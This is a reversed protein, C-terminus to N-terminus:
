GPSDVSFMSWPYTIFLQSQFGEDAYAADIRIVVGSLIIRFGVGLTNKGKKLLDKYSDSVVGREAFAALQIGTRIGKAIYINFPTHEDTLNWRYEAGYFLVKSAYFRYNNYGRLRQTGGLSSATGNERHAIIQNLRTQEADLCADRDPGAAFQNECDLGEALKVTNYDTEGKRTVFSHSLFANFVLTDWKRLPIYKTANADLAIFETNSASENQPLRISLEFRQGKRPDLRDDTLDISGGVSISTIYSWDKNIGEFENGDADLIELLKEKGYIARLFTEYRRESFSLTMQSILYQGQAKPQIFDDPDSDLGRKYQIPAVLYDNYGVDLILRKPILQLDILAVGSANFDGSVYYGTVDADTGNINLITGGGGLATGLGPIEGAIPYFYYAFDKGFQDKRREILDASAVETFLLLCTFFTIFNQLFLKSIHNQRNKINSNMLM